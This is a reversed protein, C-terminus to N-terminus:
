TRGNFNDPAETLIDELYNYMTSIVRGDVSWDITMGLYAHINGYSVLLIERDGDFINNLQDIIWDLEEQQLHSM